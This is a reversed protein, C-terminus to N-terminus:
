TPGIKKRSAPSPIMRSLLMGLFFQILGWFNNIEEELM